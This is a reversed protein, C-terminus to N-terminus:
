QPRPAALARLLAPLQAPLAFAPAARLLPPLRAPRLGAVCAVLYRGGGARGAAFDPLVANLAAAFVDLPDPDPDPDPPPAAGRLWGACREAAGPSLLLLVAGGDRLARRREAHLWALAGRASLEARSWQELAAAAGRARLEAGLAAAAGQEAAAYLVLVRRGRLPGKLHEKNLLLLLLAGAACLLGGAWALGWRSRVYKDLSCAWGTGAAGGEVRWVQLCQGSQVDQRLHQELLGPDAAGMSTSSTLPVCTGREVACLTASGQPDATEVLLLDAPRAPLTGEQLCQTLRVQGESRVQICLNPHPQLTDLEQLGPLTAQRLQPLATCPGAPDPRWCPMLEASIDCPASIKYSLTGKNVRLKLQTQAWLRAWAATDNSFPCLITRPPDPIEPWVQLCVCPLMHAEPLSYNQPASLTTRNGLNTCGQTQNRYVWLTYNLWAPVAVPVEVQLQVVAETPRPSVQLRPVQCLQMADQAALWSCSPIHHTKNLVEHYLPQTYSMVLVEAQLPAEFCHFRLSGVTRGPHTVARHLQVEIAACRSSSPSQASLVLWGRLAGGDRPHLPAAGPTDRTGDAAVEQPGLVTLHLDVRLCASCARGHRCRLEPETQLQTPVLVPGRPQVQTGPSCLVDAELLQCSLGQSCSVSPWAARPEVVPLLALLLGLRLAQM